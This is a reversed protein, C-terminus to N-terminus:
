WAVLVAHVDRTAEPPEVAQAAKPQEL